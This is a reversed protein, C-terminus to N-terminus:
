QSSPGPCTLPTRTTSSEQQMQGHFLRYRVATITQAPIYVEPAVYTYWKGSSAQVTALSVRPQTRWKMGYRVSYTFSYTDDTVRNVPIELILHCGWVRQGTETQSYGGASLRPLNDPLLNGPILRPGQSPACGVLAAGASM